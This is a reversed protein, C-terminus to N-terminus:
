RPTLFKARINREEGNLFKILVKEGVLNRVFIAPVYFCRNAVEQDIIKATVKQGPFYQPATRPLQHRVPDDIEYAVPEDMATLNTLPFIMGLTFCLTKFNM